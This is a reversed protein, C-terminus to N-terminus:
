ELWGSEEWPESLQWVTLKQGVCAYFQSEWHARTVSGGLNTGLFLEEAGHPVCWYFSVLNLESAFSLKIRQDFFTLKSELTCMNERLSQPCTQKSPETLPSPLPSLEWSTPAHGNNMSRIMADRHPGVEAMKFQLATRLVKGCSGPASIDRWVQFELRFSQSHPRQM